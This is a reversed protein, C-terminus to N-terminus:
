RGSIRQEETATRWTLYGGNLNKVFFGHQKLIRAAIYARLGVHCYVIVEKDKPLESIKRRLKSLPIHQSDEIFGAQREGEERVDLIISNIRDRRTLEYWHCVEVDQSLINGAVYGAINVPDKASSYPPAYALELSSLASVEGGLKIATALVDLRKDVGKYGVVQAGLIKGDPSFNLKISLPSSDPYYTANSFSHIITSFYPTEKRRLDEETLGVSGATMAFVKAVSVGIVGEYKVM